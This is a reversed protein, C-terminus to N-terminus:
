EELVEESFYAVIALPKDPDTLGILIINGLDAKDGLQWMRHHLKTQKLDLVPKDPLSYITRIAAELANSSVNQGGVTCGYYREKGNQNFENINIEYHLDADTQGAYTFSFGGLGVTFGYVTNYFSFPTSSTQPLDHMQSFLRAGEVDTGYSMCVNEFIDMLSKAHVKEVDVDAAMATFAAFTLTISTLLTKM